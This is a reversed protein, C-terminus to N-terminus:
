RKIFLKVEINKCQGLNNICFMVLKNMVTVEKVQEVANHINQLKQFPLVCKRLVAELIACRNTGEAPRM